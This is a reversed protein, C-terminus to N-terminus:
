DELASVVTDPELALSIKLTSGAVDVKTSQLVAAMDPDMEDWPSWAAWQRFDVLHVYVADPSADITTSRQVTQTDSM